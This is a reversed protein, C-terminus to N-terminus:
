IEQILAGWAAIEYQAVRIKQQTVFKQEMCCPIVAELCARFARMRSLLAGDENDFDIQKGRYEGTVRVSVAIFEWDSLDEAISM